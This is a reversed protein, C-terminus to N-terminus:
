RERAISRAQTCCAGTKQCSTCTPHAEGEGWGTAGFTSYPRQCRGTDPRRSSTRGSATSATSATSSSCPSARNRGCLSDTDVRGQPNPYEQLAVLRSYVNADRGQWWLSDDNPSVM